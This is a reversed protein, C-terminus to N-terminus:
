VKLYKKFNTKEDPYLRFLHMSPSTPLPHIHEAQAQQNAPKPKNPLSPM